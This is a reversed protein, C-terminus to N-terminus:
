ACTPNTGCRCDNERLRGNHRNVCRFDSRLPYIVRYLFSTGFVNGGIATAISRANAKVVVACLIRNDAIGKNCRLAIRLIDEKYSTTLGQLSKLIEDASELGPLLEQEEM